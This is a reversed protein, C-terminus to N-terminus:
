IELFDKALDEVKEDDSLKRYECFGDLTLEGEAHVAYQNGKGDSMIDCWESGEFDNQLGLLEYAEDQYYGAYEGCAHLIGLENFLNITRTETKTM